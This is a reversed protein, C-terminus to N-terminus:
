AGELYRRVLTERAAPRLGLRQNFFREVGGDGTEIVRLAAELFDARVGWLVDLVDAPLRNNDGAPRRYVENTLLYDQLVVHRPVGLALLLLAAAVGTRDKGATCHFVVPGDDALLHEFFEAFRYSEREILRRYLENMLEAMAAPTLRLGSRELDSMRQAVSPEIALSHQVLGPVHYPDAAREAEGRFDFSRALGLAALATRDASTLGSLRDSRFLRRWRLPRGDRGPYGGLDRFNTAGQLQLVRDPHRMGIM